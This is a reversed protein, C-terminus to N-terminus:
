KGCTATTPGGFLRRILVEVLDTGEVFLNRGPDFGLHVLVLQDKERGDEPVVLFM